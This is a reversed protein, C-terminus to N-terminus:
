VGSPVPDGTEGIPNVTGDEAVDLTWTHHNICGAPCDGWGITIKIEYGGQDLALWEWWKTLGISDPQLMTAGAFRPDTAIVRAAADEPSSVPAAVATPVPTPTPAASPGLVGPSTACAAVAFAVALAVGPLAAVTALRRVPVAM